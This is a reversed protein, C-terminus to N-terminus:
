DNGGTINLLHPHAVVVTGAPLVSSLAIDPVFGDATGTPKADLGNGYIEITYVGNEGNKVKAIQCYESEETVMAADDEISRGPRKTKIAASYGGRMSRDLATRMADSYEVLVKGM